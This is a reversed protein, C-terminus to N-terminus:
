DSTSARARARRPASPMPTLDWAGSAFTAGAKHVFMKADLDGVKPLGSASRTARGITGTRPDVARAKARRSTSRAIVKAKDKVM